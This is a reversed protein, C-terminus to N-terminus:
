CETKHDTCHASYCRGESAIRLTVHSLVRSFSLVTRPMQSTVSAVIIIDTYFSLPLCVPVHSCTSVLKVLPLKPSVTIGMQGWKKWDEANTGVSWMSSSTLKLLMNELFLCM